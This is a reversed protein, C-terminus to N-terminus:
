LRLRQKAQRCKSCKEFNGAGYLWRVQDISYGCLARASDFSTRRFYHAVGHGTELYLAWGERFNEIQGGGVQTGPPLPGGTIRELAAVGEAMTTKERQEAM